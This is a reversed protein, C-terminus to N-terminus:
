AARQDPIYADIIRMPVPDTTIVRFVQQRSVGCGLWFVRKQYQGARGVSCLRENSWTHGSDGSYQMSVMPDLGQGTTGVGTEMLIEFRPYSIMRNERILGPAQRIRRIATGDAESGYRVDMSSLQNTVRDGVLHLGWSYCHVRPAWTGYTSTTSSWKGRQHWLSTAEDFAWSAKAMPFNLVSFPHDQDQYALCEADTISSSQAYGSWAFATAHTSKRDPYYGSAVVFIGAGLQTQSLWKIKDDATHVSWPAITGYPIVAGTLPQFPNTLGGFFAWIESTETGVLWIKFDPGIAMAQWPDPRLSREFFDLVDWSTGDNIASYRVRGTVINFALFIGNSMAGMTAEGTLVQSLVNSTLDFCYGNTGSTIFLQHAGKGNFSITALNSDQTVSGRVTVTQNQFIEVFTGAVVGFTRSGVVKLARWGLQSVQGALLFSQFGPTPYLAARNASSQSESTEQYFNMTLEGDQVISQSQYSGGVFGQLRM